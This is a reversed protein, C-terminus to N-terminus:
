GETKKLGDEEQGKRRGGVRIGPKLPRRKVFAAHASVKTKYSKTGKEKEIASNSPGATRHSRNQLPSRYYSVRLAAGLSWFRPRPKKTLQSNTVTNPKPSLRFGTHYWNSISFFFFVSFLISSVLISYFCSYRFYSLIFLGWFFYPYYM